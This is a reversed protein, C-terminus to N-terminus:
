QEEGKNIPKIGFALAMCSMCTTKEGEGFTEIFKEDEADGGEKPTFIVVGSTPEGCVACSYLVEKNFVIEADASVVEGTEM